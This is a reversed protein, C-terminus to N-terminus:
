HIVLREIRQGNAHKLRVLYVGSTLGMRQLDFVAQSEGANVTESHITRGTMDLFSLNGTPAGALDMVVTLSNSAPNPMLGLSGSQAIEPIGVNTANINVDDIFLDNSYLGSTYEFMIRVHNGAFISPLTFTGERWEDAAPIYGPSRVGATILNPGDLTLRLLWSKGCSTSAYVKLSETIDDTTATQTSYAYWFSLSIGTYFPMELIPTVLIDKDAFNNPTSFDQVLNYTNSANLKACGPANHGAQDSWHWYSNNREYNRTPWRYFDNNSNFPEQLLGNVEPYDAGILFADTRTISGSGHDNGVTLTVSHYGPESFSVTPNQQDSTAPNGGDFTWAWSTPTARKSNDKFQIPIGTCVFQDMTYFDAEPACTAEHGATGTFMHNQEQWLNNRGSVDSNLTARMRESQGNTFMKGCNSYELYNQTNEIVGYQGRLAVSDITFTGDWDEANWAYIRFTVPTVLNLYGVTPTNVSATHLTGTTDVNFFFTNPSAVSLGVTDAPAVSAPINSIFNNVSSRVAFTRPGTASRDVRFTLGNLTMSKGFEPTVTFSYYQSSNLQGTLDSYLSDGDSAGGDWQSFSFNGDQLSNASVGSATFPSFTIAPEVPFDLHATPPATPDTTGSTLTVDQFTYFTDVPQWSCFSDHLDTETCSSHGRTIPTDDVNDDGCEVGPNHGAGWTHELNLFHGVEHTLTRSRFENSTGDGGTYNHLLIVGDVLSGYDDQVSPPLQSYGAPAFGDAQSALSNVVWINVYANRPWPNLKSFNQGNTSRQSTIRDIGNTCNGFPDKTALQFHINTTAAIASFGCCVESLDANMKAFDRNMINVAEYIQSDSINHADSGTTPDYLVHFVLPVVYVTTDDGDRLAARAQLYAQISQEYAAEQHLLDPNEQIMRQRVEDMGCPKISQAHLGVAPLLVAATTLSLVLSFLKM